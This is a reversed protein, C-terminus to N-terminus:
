LKSNFVLFFRKLVLYVLICLIYKGLTDVISKICGIPQCKDEDVSIKLDEIPPLDSIDLEGKTRVNEEKVFPVSIISGENDSNSVCSDESSSDESSYFHFFIIFCKYKLIFFM